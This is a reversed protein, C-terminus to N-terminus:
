PRPRDEQPGGNKLLSGQLGTLETKPVRPTQTM